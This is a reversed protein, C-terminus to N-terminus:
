GQNPPRSAAAAVVGAVVSVNLSEVAGTGPIRLTRDSTKLLDDPLGPGEAGLAVVCPGEFNAQWLDVSRGARPNGSTAYVAFGGGKLDQCTQEAPGAALIVPVHEAGGEAIRIASAPMSWNQQRGAPDPGKKLGASGAPTVLIAEVGFNAASRLVAGVNHPNQVGVLWLVLSKKDSTKRTALFDELSGIKNSKVLICVGEHHDSESVKELDEPTVIHYALRNRACHQLLPSFPKRMPETVYARIIDGPRRQFVAMCAHFGCIKQEAKRAEKSIPKREPKTDPKKM